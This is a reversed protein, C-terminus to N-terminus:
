VVSKRDVNVSAGLADDALAIVSTTATMLRQGGADANHIITGAPLVLSLEGSSEAPRSVSVQVTRQDMAMVGVSVKGSSVAAALTNPEQSSFKFLLAGSLIFVLLWPWWKGLKM